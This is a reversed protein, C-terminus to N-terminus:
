EVVGVPPPLLAALLDDWEDIGCGNTRDVSTDVMRDGITGTITAVDAGGYIETCVRDAPPGEVLRQVVAPDALTACAQDADVEVADGTITAADAGCTIRYTVELGTDSNTHVVTLDATPAGADTADDDDGCAALLLSLAILAFSLRLV